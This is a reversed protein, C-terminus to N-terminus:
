FSCSSSASQINLVNNWLPGFSRLMSHIQMFFCNSIRTVNKKERQGERQMHLDKKGGIWEYM